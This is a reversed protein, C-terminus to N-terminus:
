WLPNQIMNNNINLDNQPIPYLYMKRDFVRNEVNIVKYNFIDGNKTIEIGTLPIDFYQEAEMWRKVDWFRHDEFALEIKRENRIRERMENQTFGSPIEPMNVDARGRVFNLYTLIDPNGPDYENLAEAYNLYVEALRFIVWSHVSTRNQLLDLSSDVYKRLYYGTRTARPVGKGDLGGTWCEVPRGKYETDNTLITYGLRPDRGQYPTATHVSNDWDFESGDIMEYSDVLCQSPTTGSQGLDYGIPVSAIEFSNSAGNRRAMIVESNLYGVSGFIDNYSSSLSYMGLDIVSKAAEAAAKWKESRNGPVSILSANSYEGAWSPDSFLDSAAYLLVRSKLAHAVGKTVRGLEIESYSAPLLGTAVDCESVIFDICESLPKRNIISYDDNLSTLEKIIPVGGYRKILEFYFYARLLRVEVKWNQIEALRTFYVEQQGPDPNLRYNELDVSDSSALFQNAKRIAQYYHEWVNDPNYIANWNGTNFNQVGSTELTHEAEDSASSMMAGDISEFGNPIEAYVSIARYKTYDYSKTVESESLTVTFDQDLDVCASLMFVILISFLFINNKM